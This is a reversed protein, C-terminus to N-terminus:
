MSWGLTAAWHAYSHKMTRALFEEMGEEALVKCFRALQTVDFAWQHEICENGSFYRPAKEDV